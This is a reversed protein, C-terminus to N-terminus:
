ALPRAAGRIREDALISCPRRATGIVSQIFKSYDVAFSFELESFGGSVHKELKWGYHAIDLSRRSSETGYECEDAKKSDVFYMCNRSVDYYLQVRPANEVSKEAVGRSNFNVGAHAPVAQIQNTLEVRPEVASSRPTFHCDCMLFKVDVLEQTLKFPSSEFGLNKPSLSLIYGFDIHIVHGDSDLLINGNHRSRYSQVFNKQATLFQESNAQGFEKLFYDLLSSASSNCAHKKIQHLSVANMVPEIMGSDKSVVLIRYPRVWLPVREEEWINKFLSLIQFALLEQRLDDGTKVICPLLKWNILHGYPSTERIRQVKQDWPESLASASPDDSTHKFQKTPASATESLRKRIELASITAGQDKSDNSATSDISMQSITDMAHFRRLSFQASIEDDDHSWADDSGGNPVKFVSHSPSTTILSDPLKSQDKCRSPNCDFIQASDNTMSFEMSKSHRLVVGTELLKPAIPCEHIDEVELVELCILYPAKDKSNLVAGATPPIRVVYHRPGNFGSEVLPLWVRAPLNLNLMALEAILRTTKSDKGSVSKLRNGVVVLSKVFELEPMLRPAGCTCEVNEPVSSSLLTQNISSFCTCGNDFAHGSSLDGPTLCLSRFSTVSTSRKGLGNSTNYVATADSRSRHHTKRETPSTPLVIRSSDNHDFKSRLPRIEENLLINRLKVGHSKKKSSKLIDTNYADLLWAVQLAFDVSMRCRYIIYPHLVEAVERITIYLNILQPLYFDVDQDPFSFLRNGLYTLVGPEKSNYLYQAAISMNFISSEFLRLLLSQKNVNTSCGNTMTTAISNATADESSPQKTLISRCKNDVSRIEFKQNEQDVDMTFDVKQVYADPENSSGEVPQEQTLNTIMQIFSSDTEEVEQIVSSNLDHTTSSETPNKIASKTAFYTETDCLNFAKKLACKPCLMKWSSCRDCGAAPSEKDTKSM